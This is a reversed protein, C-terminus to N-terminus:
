LGCAVLGSLDIFLVTFLRLQDYCLNGEKRDMRAMYM